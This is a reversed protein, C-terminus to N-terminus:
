YDRVCRVPFACSRNIDYFEIEDHKFHLCSVTENNIGPTSSWYVGIEGIYQVDGDLYRGGSAPLM